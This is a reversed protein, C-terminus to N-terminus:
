IVWEKQEECLKETRNVLLDTEAKLDFDPLFMPDTVKPRGQFSTTTLTSSSGRQRPVCHKKPRKMSGGLGYRMYYAAAAAELGLVDDEEHRGGGRRLPAPGEDFM